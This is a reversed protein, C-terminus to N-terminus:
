LKSPKRHVIRYWKLNWCEPMKFEFSTKVKRLFLFQLCLLLFKLILLMQGLSSRQSVNTKNTFEKFQLYEILTVTGDTLAESNFMFKIDNIKGSNTTVALIFKPDTM